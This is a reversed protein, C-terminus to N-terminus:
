PVDEEDARGAQRGLLDELPQPGPQAVADLVLAAHHPALQGLNDPQPQGLRQPSLTSRTLTDVCTSSATDPRGAAPTRTTRSCRAASPHVSRASRTVSPSPRM